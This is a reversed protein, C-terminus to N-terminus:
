ISQITVDLETNGYDLQERHIELASTEVNKGCYLVKIEQLTSIDSFESPIEESYRCNQLGLRELVPFHHHSSNWQELDLCDLKLFKLNQFEDDKTDWIKGIFAEYGLKLFKLNPLIGILSMKEWPLGINFLSLKKINMPFKVVSCDGKFMNRSITLSQLQSLFNLDPFYNDPSKYKLTRLNPSCRLIEEDESDVIQVFGLSQLCNKRFSDSNKTFRAGNYKGSVRLHRLKPMNLLYTPVENLYHLCLYELNHLKGISPELDSFELYRLDPMIKFGPRVINDNSSDLIRIKVLNYVITFAEFINESKLVHHFQQFQFNEDEKVMKSCMDLVLDHLNCAKVGNDFRRQVVQLLSRDILEMLYEEVVDELSKHEKKGVLGEAIWLLLLKRVPIEEDEQFAGLYLFCPKLHNPLHIYSLKLTPIYDDAKQSIYSSLSEAFQQWLSEKKKMNSLIGAILVVLLPLGKCNAAIQKGIDQLEQPCCEKKFVKQELLNWSEDPSLPPPEIIVHSIDSAVNKLRSTFM